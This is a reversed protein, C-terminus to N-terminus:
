ILLKLHVFVTFTLDLVSRQEVRQWTEIGIEMTLEMQMEDM